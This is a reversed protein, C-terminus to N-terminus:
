QVVIKGTQLPNQRSRYKYIGKETFTYRYTDGYELYPSSFYGENSVVSHGFLGDDSNTWRVTAGRSIITTQPSFSFRNITVDVTSVEYVNPRTLDNQRSVVFGTSSSSSETQCSVLMVLLISVIIRKM